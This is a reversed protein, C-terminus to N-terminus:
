RRSRDRRAGDPDTDNARVDITSAAADEAVTAADDVAAPPDDVCAINVTVHGLDSGGRGDSVTYDFGGAGAGCLNAAPVFHVSGASISVARGTANSVATVTLPDADADTDNGAPGGAGSV